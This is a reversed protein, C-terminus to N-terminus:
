VCLEIFIITLKCLYEDVVVVVVVVFYMYNINTANSFFEIKRCLSFYDQRNNVTVFFLFTIINVKLKQRRLQSFHITKIQFKSKMKLIKAFRQFQM